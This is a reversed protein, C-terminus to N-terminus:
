YDLQIASTIKYFEEFKIEYLKNFFRNDYLTFCGQSITYFKGDRLIKPVCNFNLKLNIQKFKQELEKNKESNFQYYKEKAEKASKETSKKIEEQIEAKIEEPSKNPYEKEKNYEMRWTDFCSHFSKYELNKLDSLVIDESKVNKDFDNKM